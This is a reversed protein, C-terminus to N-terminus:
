FDAGQDKNNEHQFTTEFDQESNEDNHSNRNSLIHIESAVIETATRNIQNIQDLWKRTRLRGEVYIQSGKKAYKGVIEALKGYVVIRHWETQEKKEQSIKDRWIETTAMNFSIVAEGNNMYKIDSDGSMNGLLIVKNVSGRSM